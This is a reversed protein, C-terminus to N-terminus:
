KDEHTHARMSHTQTSAPVRVAWVRACRLEEVRAGGAGRSKPRADAAGAGRASRHAYNHTYISTRPVPMTRIAQKHAHTHTHTHASRIAPPHLTVGCRALLEHRRHQCCGRAASLCVQAAPPNTLLSSDVTWKCAESALRRGARWWGHARPDVRGVHRPHCRGAGGRTGSFPLPSGSHHRAYRVRVDGSRQHAHCACV